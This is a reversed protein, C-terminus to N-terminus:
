PSCNKVQSPGEPHGCTIDLLPLQSFSLASFPSTTEVPGGKVKIETYGRDGEGFALFPFHPWHTLLIPIEKKHTTEYM